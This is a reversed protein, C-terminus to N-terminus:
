IKKSVTKQKYTENKHYYSVQVGCVSPEHHFSPSGTAVLSPNEINQQMYTTM